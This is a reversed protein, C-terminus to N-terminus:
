RDARWRWEERITLAVVLLMGVVALLVALALPAGSVVLLLGIVAAAPYLGSYWAPYYRMARERIERYRPSREGRRAVLEAVGPLAGAGSVLAIVYAAITPASGFRATELVGFHGLAGFVLAALALIGVWRVLEVSPMERIENNPDPRVVSM